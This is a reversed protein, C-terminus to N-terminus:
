GRSRAVYRLKTRLQAIANGSSVGIVRVLL